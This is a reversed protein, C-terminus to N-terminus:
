PKIPPALPFGPGHRTFFGKSTTSKDESRPVSELPSPVRKPEQASRDMMDLKTFAEITKQYSEDTIQGAVHRARGKLNIRRATVLDGVTSVSFDYSDDAMTIDEFVNRREVVLDNSASSVVSICQRISDKTEQLQELQTAIPVSMPSGSKMADIREDIENEHSQLRSILTHISHNIPVLGSRIYKKASPLQSFLPHEKPTRELLEIQASLQACMNLGQQTSEKEQLMAHWETEDLESAEPGGTSLEQVKDELRQLNQQLEITTDRIM